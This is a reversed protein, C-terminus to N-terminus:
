EPHYRQFGHWHKARAASLRKGTSMEYLIVGLSFIDSRGDVPQGLVQEPSMYAPTGMIDGAQTQLTASSDEIHAIGFDTVRIEGDPQVIINSPKIDRHVYGKQHAYGLTKAIQTGFEVM